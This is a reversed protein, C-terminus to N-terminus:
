ASSAPRFYRSTPEAAGDMVLAMVRDVVDPVAARVSSSMTGGVTTADGAEVALFVVEAPVDLGLDRALELAELIGIAHPSGGRPGVLDSERLEMLTGPAAAGTVVSDVVVLRSAGTVAELLYMGTLASPVVEVRGAGPLDFARASMSPDVSPAPPAAAGAAALRRCLRRAVVLGLADDAVLDNGLCLVRTSAGVASAGM